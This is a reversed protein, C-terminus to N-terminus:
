PLARVTACTAGSGLRTSTFTSAMPVFVPQNEEVFNTQNASCDTNSGNVRCGIVQSDIAYKKTGASTDSIQPVTVSGSAHDCDSFQASVSTVQRIAVYLQDARAVTMPFSVVSIDLPVFSFGGGPPVVNATIGPKSDNDEDIETTITAPWVATTANALTLGLLAAAPTTTYTATPTSGSVTGNMTFSTLTGNDFLSNPFRIGYTENVLQANGQFDPLQIGCVVATDTVTNGSQTRTSMVWQTITGSGPAIVINLLGGAAWTVDITIKAGWTGAFNCAGGDNKSGADPVSADPGADPGGNSPGGDHGADTAGAETADPGGDTAGNAPADTVDDGASADDADDSAGVDVTADAVSADEVFSADAGDDGPIAASDKGAESLPVIATHGVDGCAALMALLGTSVVVGCSWHRIM